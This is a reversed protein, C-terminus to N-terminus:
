LCVPRRPGVRESLFMASEAGRMVAEDAQARVRALVVGLSLTFAGRGYSAAQHKLRPTSVGNCPRAAHRHVTRRSTCAVFRWRRPRCAKACGAAALRPTAWLDRGNRRPANPIDDASHASASHHAELTERACPWKHAAGEGGARLRRLPTRAKPRSVPRPWQRARIKRRGGRGPRCPRPAPSITTIGEDGCDVVRCAALRPRHHPSHRDPRRPSDLRSASPLRARRWRWALPPRTGHRPCLNRGHTPPEHPHPEHDADEVHLAGTPVPASMPAPDRPWHRPRNM